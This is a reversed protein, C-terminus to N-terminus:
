SKKPGVILQVATDGKFEEFVAKLESAKAQLVEPALALDFTPTAPMSPEPAVPTPVERAAASPRRASGSASLQAVLGQVNDKTLVYAKEVFLKDDGEEDGTRGIVCVTRGEVWVDKTTEYTKPFVLLELSSSVDQITVFMMASGSRTIKKKTSDIV